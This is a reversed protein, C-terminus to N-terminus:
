APAGATAECGSQFGVFSGVALWQTYTAMWPDGASCGRGQPIQVARVRAYCKRKFQSPAQLLLLLLM